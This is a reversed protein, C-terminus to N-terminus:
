KNKITIPALLRPSFLFYRCCSLNMRRGKRRKKKKNDDAQVSMFMLSMTWAHCYLFFFVVVHSPFTVTFSRQRRELAVSRTRERDM